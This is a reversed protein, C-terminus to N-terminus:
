FVQTLVGACCTNWITRKLHSVSVLRLSRNAVLGAADAWKTVMSTYQMDFVICLWVLYAPSYGVVRNM